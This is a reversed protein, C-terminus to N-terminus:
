QIIHIFSQESIAAPIMDGVVGLSGSFSLNSSAMSSLYLSMGRWLLRSDKDGYFSLSASLLSASVRRCGLYLSIGTWLFRTLLCSGGVSSALRSEQVSFRLYSSPWSFTASIEPCLITAEKDAKTDPPIASPSASFSPQALISNRPDGANGASLLNLSFSLM